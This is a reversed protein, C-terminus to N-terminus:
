KEGLHPLRLLIVLHCGACVLLVPIVMLGLFTDPQMGGPVPRFFFSPMLTTTLIMTSVTLTLSLAFVGRRLYTSFLACLHIALLFNAVVWWAAPQKLYERFTSKNEFLLFFAVFIAVMGPILGILCGAIKSYVIYAVSRPLMLLTALTQYRIEEQFLRTACMACDLAFLPVVFIQYGWTVDWWRIQRASGTQSWPYSAAFGLWYLGIYLSCRVLISFWGGTTFHFDKWVIARDWARGASLWHLRGSKRPVMSRTTTEPAPDHTVIGFLWWSLLFLLAGGASNSVLQPTLSFRYGTETVSNLESFVNTKSIWTLAADLPEHFQTVLFRLGLPPVRLYELGILAFMPTIAYGVMWLTTLGAADGNRRALVSCLLGANALLITYALLAAYAGYVQDPLLGGLTIALLTFPFQVALLLFAQFLRSTSKGLLIGIPSIGAMTMLGLTDEEKEESIASSFHSIGLLTLFIANTYIVARFFSLGPAGLFRSQSQAVWLAVYIIALLFLWSAHVWLARADARLSRFFLAFIGHFM